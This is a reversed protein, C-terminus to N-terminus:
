EEAAGEVIIYVTNEDPEEIEDYEEQTLKLFSLGGLTEDIETKTYFDIEHENM